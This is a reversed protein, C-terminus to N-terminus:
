PAALTQTRRGSEELYTREEDWERQPMFQRAVEWLDETLDWSKIRSGSARTM